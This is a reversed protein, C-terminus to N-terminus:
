VGRARLEARRALLYALLSGLFAGVVLGIVIARGVRPLFPETPTAAPSIMTVGYHKFMMRTQADLIQPVKNAISAAAAADTGEVDVRFLNTNPLITAEIVYESAASARTRTLPTSALAAVTAVVTRRELVEVGRLYENPSLGEALPGISALASARYRAPETAALVWAIAACLLAVAAVTKWNLRVLRRPRPASGHWPEGTTGSVPQDAANSVTKQGNAGPNRMTRDVGTALSRGGTAGCRAGRNCQEGGHVGIICHDAVLDDTATYSVRANEFRQARRRPLKEYGRLEMGRCVVVRRQWERAPLRDRLREDDSVHGLQETETAVLANELDSCARAILRNQERTEGRLDEAGFDLRVERFARALQEAREADRVDLEANSVPDGDELVLPREVRYERGSSRFRKGLIEDILEGVAPTTHNGHARAVHLMEPEDLLVATVDAALAQIGHPENRQALRLTRVPKNM